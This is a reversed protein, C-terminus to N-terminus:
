STTSFKQFLSTREGAQAWQPAEPTEKVLIKLSKLPKPSQSFGSGCLLDDIEQDRSEKAKVEFIRLLSVEHGPLEM